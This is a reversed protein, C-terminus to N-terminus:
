LGSPKRYRTTWGGFGEEAIKGSADRKRFGGKQQSQVFDTGSSVQRNGKGGLMVPPTAPKLDGYYKAKFNERLPEISVDRESSMDAIDGSQRNNSIESLPSDQSPKYNHRPTPPNAELPNPHGYGLDDSSDHHQHLPAYKGKKPSSSHSSRTRAKGLSDSAYWGSDQKGVSRSSRHGADSESLPVSSYSGRNPPTPTNYGSNRKPPTAPGSNSGYYSSRKLDAVSNRPSNTAIQYQRSPLDSRADRSPPPTSKYTGFSDTSQTRTHFFPITPPRSLDEYAAGSSRKSELPTSIRKESISMTSTTTVSSKNRKHRSTLHDELPNMDPPLNTIKRFTVALYLSIALSVLHLGGATIATLFVVQSFTIVLEQNNLVVRWVGEHTHAALSSFAYFPIITADLFSAFLMYSATSAPPREAAKRALHYIAYLTHAIALGPVIRMIWGTADDVGRIMIMMALLGGAGVLELCRLFLQLIRAWKIWIKVSPSMPKANTKGYPLILFSDPHQNFSVLPGEQKPRRPKPQQSARTVAKPDFERYPSRPGETKIPDYIFPPQVGM